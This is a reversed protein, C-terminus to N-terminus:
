LEDADRPGVAEGPRHSELAARWGTELKGLGALRRRREVQDLRRGFDALNEENIAESLETRVGEFNHRLQNILGHVDGDADHGGCDCNLEKLIARRRPLHKRGAALGKLITRAYPVVARKLEPKEGTKREELALKRAQEATQKPDLTGREYGVVAGAIENRLAAYSMHGLGEVICRKGTKEQLDHALRRVLLFQERSGGFNWIRLLFADCEVEAYAPAVERIVTHQQGAVKIAITALVRRPRRSEEVDVPRAGRARVVESFAHAQRLENRRGISLSTGEDVLHGPSAFWDANVEVLAEVQLEAIEEALDESILRRSPDYARKTWSLDEVQHSPHTARYQERWAELDFYTALGRRRAEDLAVKHHDVSGYAVGAGTFPDLNAAGRLIPDANRGLWLVIPRQRQVM